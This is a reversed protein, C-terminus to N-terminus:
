RDISVQRAAAATMPQVEVMRCFQATGAAPGKKRAETMGEFQFGDLLM